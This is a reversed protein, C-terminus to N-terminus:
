IIQFITSSGVPILGWIFYKRTKDSNCLPRVDSRRFLAVGSCTSLGELLLTFGHLAQQNVVHFISIINKSKPEDLAKSTSFSSLSYYIRRLLTNTLFLGGVLRFNYYMGRRAKSHIYYVNVPFLSM